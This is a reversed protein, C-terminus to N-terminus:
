GAVQQFTPSRFAPLYRPVAASVHEMRRNPQQSIAVRAVTVAQPVHRTSLLYGTQQRKWQKAKSANSHTLTIGRIFSDSSRKEKWALDRLKLELQKWDAHDVGYVDEGDRELSLSFSNTNRVVVDIVEPLRIGSVLISGDSMPFAEIVNAGVDSLLARIKLAAIATNWNAPAGRGYNWGAPLQAFSLIQEVLPDSAVSASRFHMRNDILSM